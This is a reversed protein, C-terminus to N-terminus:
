PLKELWTPEHSTTRPQPTESNKGEYYNYINRVNFIRPIGINKLLYFEYDNTSIKNLIQCPGVM